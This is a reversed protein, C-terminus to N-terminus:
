ALQAKVTTSYSVMQNPGQARAQHLALDAAYLLDDFLAKTDNNNAVGMSITINNDLGLESFDYQTIKEIVRVAIAKAKDIDTSPLIAVFENGGIRAFVDRSRMTESVLQAVKTLVLDGVRHSFNDNIRKFDDIDFLLVSLELQQQTSTEILEVGRVFLAARNILGTLRDTKTLLILKKRVKLQRLFLLIFVVITCLILIFNRQQIVQQKEVDDLRLAKLKNQYDLLKNTEIKHTIEHKKTLRKVIRDRQADGYDNYDDIFVKKVQYAQQYNKTAALSTALVQYLNAFLPSVLQKKAIKDQLLQAEELLNIVQQHQNHYQALNAKLLLFLYQEGINLNILEAPSKALVTETKQPNEVSLTLLTLIKSKIAYETAQDLTVLQNQNTLANKQAFSPLCFIAVFLQIIILRSNM